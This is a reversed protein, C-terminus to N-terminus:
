QQSLCLYDFCSLWRQSFWTDMLFLFEFFFQAKIFQESAGLLRVKAYKILWSQSLKPLKVKLFEFISETTNEGLIKM